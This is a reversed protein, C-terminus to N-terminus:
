GAPQYGMHGSIAAAAEKALATLEATRRRARSSPAALALAGILEGAAGYIPAGFGTVGETAQDRTVAVGDRRAAEIAAKLDRKTTIATPTLPKIKVGRIYAETAEAPAFALFIHGAASAYLPRRDGVKTSFRLASPSEVKDVYVTSQADESLVGIVATEGTKSVVDDLIPRAVEPFHRSSLIHSALAYAAGALRYTGASQRIHSTDVLGRLLVLLSSKPTGLERSLLSLSWEQSEDSLKELVQLVRVVSRPSSRRPKPQPM